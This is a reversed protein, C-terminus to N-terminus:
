RPPQRPAAALSDPPMAQALWDDLTAYTTTAPWEPAQEMKSSWTLHVVAYPAPSGTVQFLVDDRDLRRAVARVRKGYLQHKSGVEKHLETELSQDSAAVAAWPKRLLSGLKDTM